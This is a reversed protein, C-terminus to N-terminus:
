KLNQLYETRADDSPLDNLARREQLSVEHASYGKCIMCEDAWASEMKARNWGEAFGGVFGGAPASRNYNKSINENGPDLPVDGRVQEFCNSRDASYSAWTVNDKHFVYIPGRACGTLILALAFLALVPKLNPTM